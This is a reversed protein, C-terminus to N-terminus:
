DTGNPTTAICAQRLLQALHIADAGVGQHIQTRCSFGDAVVVARSPAKRLLPFLAREGCAM